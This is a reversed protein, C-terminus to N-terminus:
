DRNFRFFNMGSQIKMEGGLYIHLHWPMIKSHNKSSPLILFYSNLFFFFRFISKKKKKVDWKVITKTSILPSYEWGNMWPSGASTSTNFQPFHCNRRKHGVKEHQQSWPTHPLSRNQNEFDFINKFILM